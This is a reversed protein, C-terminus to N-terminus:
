AALFHECPQEKELLHVLAEALLVRGRKSVLM